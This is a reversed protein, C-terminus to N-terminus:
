LLEKEESVIMFLRYQRLTRGMVTFTSWQMGM